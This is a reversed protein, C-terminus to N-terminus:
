NAGVFRRMDMRLKSLSIMDIKEPSDPVGLLVTKPDINKFGVEVFDRRMDECYKDNCVKALIMAEAAERGFLESYVDDLQFVEEYCMVRYRDKANKEKFKIKQIVGGEKLDWVDSIDLPVFEALEDIDDLYPHPMKLIKLFQDNKYQSNCRYCSPILNYISLALFPYRSRPYFHDFASKKAPGHGGSKDVEIDIAYILDANCYPCVRINERIKRMLEAGGWRNKSTGIRGRFSEYNFVRRLEDVVPGLHKPMDSYYYFSNEIERVFKKIVEPIAVLGREENIFKAIRSLFKRQLPCTWKADNVVSDLEAPLDELFEEHLKLEDDTFRKLVKM